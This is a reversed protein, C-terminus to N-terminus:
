EATMTGVMTPHVTCIFAYGGAELAPVDYTMTEVGNFIEGKFVEEGTESDRRIAVNHPTGADNNTFEIQFPEGAPVNVEAQEFALGVASIVIAGSDPSASPEASAEVSPPPTVSPAPQYTWGPNAATCAVLLAGFLVGFSAVTLLRHLRM